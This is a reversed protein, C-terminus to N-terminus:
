RNAVLPIDVRHSDCQGKSSVYSWRGTSVPCYKVTVSASTFYRGVSQGSSCSTRISYLM